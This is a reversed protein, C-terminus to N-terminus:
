RAPRGAAHDVSRPTEEYRFPVGKDDCLEAGIRGVNDLPSDNRLRFVECGAELARDIMESVINFVAETPRRCDLCKPDDLSLRGCGPCSRGMKAFGDRALLLKVRGQRLAGLVRELGLAARKGAQAADLLRHVLVSERVKRAEAECASIRELVSDAPSEPDLDPDLILNQQLHTHLHNVLPLSLEPSTGLVVRQFGQNRSLAELSDTISKLFDHGPEAAAPLTMSDYDRVRGMFVELFRARTPGALVVGFRHHQDTQSLLPALAPKSDIVLKNRVPEPLSCVRWLGFRKASFIALGRFRGPEFEEALYREVRKLDESAEIAPDSKALARAQRQLTAFPTQDGAELYLSLVSPGPTKFSLLEQLHKQTIM